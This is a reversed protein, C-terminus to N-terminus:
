APTLTSPYIPATTPATTLGGNGVLPSAMPILRSNFYGVNQHDYPANNHSHVLPVPSQYKIKKALGQAGWNRPGCLRTGQSQIYAM